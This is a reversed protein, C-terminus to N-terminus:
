DIFKGDIYFQHKKIEELESAWCKNFYACYSCQWSTKYKEKDKTFEFYIDGRNKMVAKFDRGPLTGDEISKKLSILRNIKNKWTERWENVVAGNLLLDGNSKIEHQRILGNDRGIYVVYAKKIGTFAMYSLVQLMHDEKPADKVFDFARGYITKIELIAESDGDRVIGDLYYNFTLGDYEAVRHVESEILLGEEKLIDQLGQHQISGFHMKFRSPLDIPNSPETGTKKWFIKRGCDNLYSPAFTVAEQKERTRDTSEFHDYFIKAFNM